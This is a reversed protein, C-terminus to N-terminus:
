SECFNNVQNLESETLLVKLVFLQVFENKTHFVYLSLRVQM